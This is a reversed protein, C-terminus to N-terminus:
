RGALLPRPDWTASPEGFGLGEAAIYTNSSTALPASGVNVIITSRHRLFSRVQECLEDESMEGVTVDNFGLEFIGALESATSQLDALFQGLRPALWDQVEDLTRHGDLYDSAVRFIGLPAPM